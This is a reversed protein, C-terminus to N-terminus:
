VLLSTGSSATEPAPAPTDDLLLAASPEPAPMKSVHDGTVTLVNNEEDFEIGTEESKGGPFARELEELLIGKVLGLTMPKGAIVTTITPNGKTKRIQGRLNGLLM